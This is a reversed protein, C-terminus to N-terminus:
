LLVWTLRFNVQVGNITIKLCDGCMTHSQKHEKYLRKILLTEMRPGRRGKVQWWCQPTWSRQVRSPSRSAICWGGEEVDQRVLLRVGLQQVVVESLISLYRGRVKVPAYYIAADGPDRCGYKPTNLPTWALATLGVAQLLLALDVLRVVAAGGVPGVSPAGRFSHTCASLFFVCSWM